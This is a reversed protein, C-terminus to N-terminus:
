NWQKKEENFRRAVDENTIKTIRGGGNIFARLAEEKTPERPAFLALSYELGLLKCINMRAREMRRTISCYKGHTKGKLVGNADAFASREEYAKEHKAYLKAFAARKELPVPLHDLVAKRLKRGGQPENDTKGNIKTKEIYGRLRHIECCIERYPASYVGETIGVEKQRLKTLRLEEELEARTKRPDYIKSM